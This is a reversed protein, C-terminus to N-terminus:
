FIRKRRCLKAIAEENLEQAVPKERMEKGAGSKNGYRGKGHRRYNKGSQFNAQAYEYAEKDSMKNMLDTHLTLEPLTMHGDEFQHKIMQNTRYAFTGGQKSAKQIPIHEIVDKYNYSNPNYSYVFGQNAELFKAVEAIRQKRGVSM